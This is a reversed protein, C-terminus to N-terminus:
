SLPCLDIFTLLFGFAFLISDIINSKGSGNPGVISTFSSHFPGLTQIGEYSKFNENEIHSIMLRHESNNDNGSIDPLSPIFIDDVFIGSVGNENVSSPIEVDEISAM